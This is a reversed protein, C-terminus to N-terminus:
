YKHLDSSLYEGDERDRRPLHSPPPCTLTKERINEVGNWELVQDSSYKGLRNPLASISSARLLSSLRIWSSIFIVIISTLFAVLSSLSPACGKQGQVSTIIFRKDM